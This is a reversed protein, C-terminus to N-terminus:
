YCTDEEILGLNHHNILRLQFTFKFGTGEEGDDNSKFRIAAYGDISYM